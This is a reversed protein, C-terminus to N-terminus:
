ATVPHMFMRGPEGGLGARTVIWTDGKELSYPGNLRVTVARSSAGQVRFAGCSGWVQGDRVLYVEYHTHQPLRPLGVVSITMPSNGDADRWVKLTARAHPALRTGTLALTKPPPAISLTKGGRHGAVAYGAAFVAVVSIAAALLLMARRKVTRRQQLRTVEFSPVKRLQPPLEPPPGAQLLLEHASRLREREAGRTETGVLDDFNPERNV